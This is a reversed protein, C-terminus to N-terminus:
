KLLLFSLLRGAKKGQRRYSYCQRSAYTCILTTEINNEPVGSQRLQDRVLKGLDAQTADKAPLGLKRATAADIEYHRASIHPGIGALMDAPRSQYLRQMKRITAPVIGKAIGRWGAHILGIANRRRDYLFVPLCDATLIGIMLGRKETILADCGSFYSLGTKPKTRVTKIRRGHVQQVLVLPATKCNLLEKLNNIDQRVKKRNLGHFYNFDGLSVTTTGQLITHNKSFCPLVFLGKKM